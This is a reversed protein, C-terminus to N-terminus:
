SVNSSFYLIHACSNQSITNELVRLAGMENILLNLSWLVYLSSWEFQAKIWRFLVWRFLVSDTASRYADGICYGCIQSSSICCKLWKRRQSSTLVTVCLHWGARLSTTTCVPRYVGVAWPVSCCTVLGHGWVRGQCFWIDAGAANSSSKFNQAVKPATADDATHDITLFAIM